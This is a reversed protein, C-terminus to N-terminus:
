VSAHLLQMISIAYHFETGSDRDLGYRDYPEMVTSICANPVCSAASEKMMTEVTDLKTGIDLEGVVANGPHSGDNISSSIEVVVVLGCFKNVPRQIARALTIRYGPVCYTKGDLVLSARTKYSGLSALSLISEDTEM